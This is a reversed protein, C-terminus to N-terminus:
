PRGVGRGGSRHLLHCSLTAPGPERGARYSAKGMHAVLEAGLAKKGRLRIWARIVHDGSLNIHEEPWGLIDSAVRLMEQRAENAAQFAAQSAVRTVRSGGM